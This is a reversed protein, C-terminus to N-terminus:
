AFAGFKEQFRILDGTLKDMLDMSTVTGAQKEDSRGGEQHEETAGELPQHPPTLPEHNTDSDPSGSTHHPHHGQSHHQHDHVSLPPTSLLLSPDQAHMPIVKITMSLDKGNLSSTPVKMDVPSSPEPMGDVTSSTSDMSSRSLDPCVQSDGHIGSGSSTSVAPKPLRFGFSDVDNVKKMDRDIDHSDHHVPRHVTSPSATPRRTMAATSSCEPSGIPTVKSKHDALEVQVRSIYDLMQKARKAMEQLTMKPSPYRVAAPAAPAMPQPTSESHSPAPTSNRSGSRTSTGRDGNRKSYGKKTSPAPSSVSPVQQHGNSSNNSSVPAVSDERSEAHDQHGSNRKGGTKSGAGGKRSRTTSETLDTDSNNKTASDDDEEAAVSEPRSPMDSKSVTKRRKTAPVSSDSPGSTKADATSDEHPRSNKPSNATSTIAAPLPEKNTPHPGNSLDAGQNDNSSPTNSRSRAKSTAKATTKKTTNRGNSSASKPSSSPSTSASDRDDTSDKKKSKTTTTSTVAATDNSDQQINNSSPHHEDDIDTTSSETKRRRKAAARPPLDDEIEDQHEENWKQQALMLDMPISAEKSNMTSRKKTPKATSKANSLLQGNQVRYPHNEPRCSDCYYKDPTVEGDGLGVCPCHQWVKCTECQIMVGEHHQQNCVCRTQGGDDDEEKKKSGKAPGYRGSRRPPAVM